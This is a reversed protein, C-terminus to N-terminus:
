RRSNRRRRRRQSNENIDQELNSDSLNIRNRKIWNASNKDRNMLLNAAYISNLEHPNTPNM